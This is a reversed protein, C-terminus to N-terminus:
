FIKAWIGSLGGEISFTYTGDENNEIEGDFSALGAGGEGDFTVPDNSFSNDYDIEWNPQPTFDYTKGFSGLSFNVTPETQTINMDLWYNEAGLRLCGTHVTLNDLNLKNYPNEVETPTANSLNIAGWNFDVAIDIDFKENEAVKLGSYSIGNWNPYNIVPREFRVTGQDFGCAVGIDGYAAGSAFLFLLWVLRNKM